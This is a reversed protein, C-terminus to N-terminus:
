VWEEGCVNCQYVQKDIKMDYFEIHMIGNCKPCRCTYNEVIKQLLMKIIKM